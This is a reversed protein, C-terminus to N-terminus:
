FLMDVRVNITGITLTDGDNLPYTAGRLTLPHSNIFTGNTSGLDCVALGQENLVLRLHRRSVCADPLPIDAIAADRGISVGGERGIAAFPIAIDWLNGDSLYGCLRLSSAVPAEEAAPAAPVPAQAPTVLHPTQPPPVNGHPTTPTSSIHPLGQQPLEVPKAYGPTIPQPRPPLPIGGATAPPVIEQARRVAIASRLANLEQELAAARAEMEKLSLDDTGSNM